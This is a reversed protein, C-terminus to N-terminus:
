QSVNKTAARANVHERQETSKKDKDRGGFVRLLCVAACSFILGTLVGFSILTVRHLVPDPEGSDDHDHDSDHEHQHNADHVHAHERVQDRDPDNASIGRATIPEGDNQKRDTAHCNKRTEIYADSLENSVSEISKDFSSLANAMQFARLYAACADEYRKSKAYIRAASTLTKVAQLSLIQLPEIGNKEELTSLVKDANGLQLYIDLLRSLCLKMKDRNPLPADNLLAVADQYHEAAAAYDGNKIDQEALDTDREVNQQVAMLKKGDINVSRLGLDISRPQLSLNMAQQNKEMNTCVKELSSLTPDNGPLFARAYDLAEKYVTVGETFNQEREHSAGLALLDTLRKRKELLPKELERMSLLTKKALLFDSSQCAKDAALLCEAWKNNASQTTESDSGAFSETQSKQTGDEPQM